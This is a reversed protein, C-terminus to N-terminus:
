ARRPALRPSSRRTSRRRRRSSDATRRSSARVLRRTAPVDWFRHTDWRERPVHAIVDGVASASSVRGVGPVTPLDFSAGSVVVAPRSAAVGRRTTTACLVADSARSSFSADSYSDSSAITETETATGEGRELIFTSLATATPYDFVATEPLEVAFESELQQKLEVGSLSDLGADMLPEDPAVDRGLLDGLIAVVRTQISAASAKTGELGGESARRRQRRRRRRTRARYVESADSSSSRVDSHSDEDDGGGAGARREAVFSALSAPTPYDFVVTEPLEVAFESEMQQKLEVGSLSDLGADM